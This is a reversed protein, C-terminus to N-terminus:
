LTFNFCVKSILLVYAFILSYFHYYKWMDYVAVFSFWFHAM